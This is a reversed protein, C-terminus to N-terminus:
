SVPATEPMRAERYTRDTLGALAAGVMGLGMILYATVLGWASLISGAILMGVPMIGMGIMSIVSNVRGRYNDPVSVQLYANIPIDALPIALGCGINWLVILWFNPSFAMIAVFTGVAALGLAFTVTPRRINMKGVLPSMVIMGVFFSFELWMLTAPEGNFWQKNTAVYVVFFPSVMLRFVTLMAILVVLERRGKIYRLGDRFNAGSKELGDEVPTIGLPEIKPLRGIFYASGFFSVANVLVCSLFFRTPSLAYLPTIFAASFALGLMPMLSQTTMSFANAELVKEEPVVNPIAASKAPLFFCRVTSLVFSMVLLTWVPPAADFFLYAGFMLLALGSVIDSLLMIKKRDIRDALVGAYASFFLYPIAELAGVWGVTEIKGTLREAMFMFTVYYFADGFQSIAQGLWLDRFAKYRLIPLFNSPV